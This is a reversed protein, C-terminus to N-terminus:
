EPRRRSERDLRWIFYLIGFWSGATPVAWVWFPVNVGAVGKMFEMWYSVFMNGVIGLLLGMILGRYFMRRETRREREEDKKRSKELLKAIEISDKVTDKHLDISAKILVKNANFIFEKTDRLQESLQDIKNELKKLKEELKSM